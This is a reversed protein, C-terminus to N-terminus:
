PKSHTSLKLHLLSLAICFVCPQSPSSIIGLLQRCSCSCAHAALLQLGAPRIYHNFAADHLEQM